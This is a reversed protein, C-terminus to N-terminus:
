MSLTEPNTANSSAIVDYYAVVTQLICPRDTSCPDERCLCQVKFNDTYNGIFVMKMDNSLEVNYDTQCDRVCSSFSYYQNKIPLCRCYEGNFQLEKPWQITPFSCIDSEPVSVMVMMDTPQLPMIDAFFTM